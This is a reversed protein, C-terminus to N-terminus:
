IMITSMLKRDICDLNFIIQLINKVTVSFPCSNVHIEDLSYIM